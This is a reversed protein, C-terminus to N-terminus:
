ISRPKLEAFSGIQYLVINLPVYALLNELMYPLRYPVANCKEWQLSVASSVKDHKSWQFLVM